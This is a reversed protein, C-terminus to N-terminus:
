NTLLISSVIEFGGTLEGIQHQLIVTYDGQPLNDLAISHTSQPQNTSISRQYVIDGNANAITINLDQLVDEMYVSLTNNGLYVSPPASPMQEKVLSRVGKRPWRGHLGVETEDVDTDDQTAFLNVAFLLLCSIFMVKRMNCNIKVKMAFFLV